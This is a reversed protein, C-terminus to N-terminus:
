ATAPVRYKKFSKVMAIISFTLFFLGLFVILASMEDEGQVYCYCDSDYSYDTARLDAVGAAAGFTVLSMVLGIISFVRLTGM